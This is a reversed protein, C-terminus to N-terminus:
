ALLDLDYVGPPKNDKGSPDNIPSSGGSAVEIPSGPKLLPISNAGDAKVRAPPSAPPLQETPNNGSDNSLM